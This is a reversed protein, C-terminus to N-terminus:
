IIGENEEEQMRWWKAIEGATTIWAGKEKCVRILKEYMDAWGPFELENFVSHHWLVTLVGGKEEVEEIMKMCVEWPKEYRFLAVDEIALPIELLKLPRGGDVPHFPFCTGGGFGVRHNFGLSTDYEFGLKEHIRWTHPIELNLNHQRIGKVEADLVKELTEKEKKLLDINKYSYFSGHLGIEWGESHLARIMEAVKKDTIDYRRGYHRWTNRDFLRVKGSENLIFFTSKVDLKRELNMTNEFTWYPEEGRIKRFFSLFERKLGRIDGRKISRISNTVYQYTKQLEDVDHTLCLAFRRGSPWAIKQTPSIEYRKKVIMIAL